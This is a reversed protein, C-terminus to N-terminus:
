PQEKISLDHTEHYACGATECEMSIRGYYQDSDLITEVGCGPCLAWYYGLIGDLVFPGETIKPRSVSDGGCCSMPVTRLLRVRRGM